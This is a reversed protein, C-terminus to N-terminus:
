AMKLVWSFYDNSTEESRQVIEQLEIDLIDHTKFRLKVAEKLDKLSIKVKDVLADFWIRAHSTFYFPMTLLLHGEDQKHFTCYREVWELWSKGDQDDGAFKELQLGTPQYM